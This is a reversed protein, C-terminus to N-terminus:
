QKKFVFIQEEKSTSNILRITDSEHVKHYKRDSMRVSLQYEKHSFFDEYALKKEDNTSFVKSEVVIEQEEKASFHLTKIRPTCFIFVSKVEGENLAIYEYRHPAGLPMLFCSTVLPILLFVLFKRM